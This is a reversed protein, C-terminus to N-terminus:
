RITFRIEQYRKKFLKMKLKFVQTKFGKSDIVEISGNLHEIVHDAIYSIERITKGDMDKFKDQLIYKVQRQYSLILRKSLMDQYELYHNLEKKSDFIIGNYSVKSNGYKSKRKKFKM